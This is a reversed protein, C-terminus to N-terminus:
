MKISIKAKKDSASLNTNKKLLSFTKIITALM